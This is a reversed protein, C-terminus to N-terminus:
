FTGESLWLRVYRIPITVTLTHSLELPALSKSNLVLGSCPTKKGKNEKLHSPVLLPM